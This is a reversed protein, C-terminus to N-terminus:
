VYEMDVGIGLHRGCHAQMMTEHALLEPEAVGKTAEGEVGHPNSWIRSGLAAPKCTEKVEGGIERSGGVAVIGEHAARRFHLGEGVQL